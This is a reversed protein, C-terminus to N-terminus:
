LLPLDTLTLMKRKPRAGGVTSPLLTPVVVSGSKTAKVLSGVSSTPVKVMAVRMVKPM